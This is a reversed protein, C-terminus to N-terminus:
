VAAHGHRSHVRPHSNRQRRCRLRARSLDRRVWLTGGAPRDRQAHDERAASEVQAGANRGRSLTGAGLAGRFAHRAHQHLRYGERFRDQHSAANKGALAPAIEDMLWSYGQKYACLVEVNLKHADAGAKLLLDRLEAQLKRREEPGESVRAVLKVEDGQAIKASGRRVAEVLRKGEWPITIDETFTPASAHFPYGPADFHLAPTQACCATGARLSAAKVEAAVHLRSQIQRRAFDALKPDALDTYIEAKVDRAGSGAETMWRDLHYLAAAAQGVSSRVSFFKHLDYRIEEISLYQKGQEWLNPFHGALASIAAAQGREDGRALIAARRGFANDVIRLEGEGPALATESEAFAADNARLKKEAEQAIASDGAIVAHARVDRATAADAPSAIPLTIGTTELGMRAALNAMAIGAAGAPVFLHANSSGPLPIRGSAGFLGRSTYLTALDLRIPAAGPADAATGAPAAGAGGGGGGSPQAPAPEIASAPAEAEGLFARHVGSKGRLYTVGTLGAGIDSLRRVPFAGNILRAPPTPM